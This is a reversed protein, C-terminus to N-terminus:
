VGNWYHSDTDARRADVDWAPQPLDAHSADGYSPMDLRGDYPIPSMREVAPSSAARLDQSRGPEVGDRSDCAGWIRRLFVVPVKLLLRFPIYLGIVLALRVANYPTRYETARASSKPPVVLRGETQAPDSSTSVKYRMGQRWQPDRMVRGRSTPTVVIVLTSAFQRKKIAPVDRQQVPAAPTRLICSRGRRGTVPVWSLDHAM